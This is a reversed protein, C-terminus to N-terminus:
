TAALYVQIPRSGLLVSLLHKDIKLGFFLIVKGGKQSIYHNAPPVKHTNVRMDGLNRPCGVVM